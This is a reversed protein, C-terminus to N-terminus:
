RVYIDFGEIAVDEYRSEGNRCVRMEIDDTTPQPLQKYFWPPTNFSCCTNQPECGAGDWLPNDAYFINYRRYEYQGGTDCFYDDGVFSPIRAAARHAASASIEFCPCLQRRYYNDVAAAFTWIHTRPRGHTLSVGDVYTSDIFSDSFAFAEPRGYQYATIRGCVRTYTINPTSIIVSSCGGSDSTRVCTRRNTDNLQLGSPCQHSSNTMDLEAVRMWGGTVNGCSRTMGCYVRQASGNSTRVWYYGSPSSPPLSACSSAPFDLFKGLDDIFDTLFSVRKELPSINGSLSTELDEIFNTLFDVHKELTSINGTLSTAVPFDPFQGINEILFNVRKELASINGSLSTEVANHFPNVILLAIGACAAVVGLVLVTVTVTLAIVCKSTANSTYKSPTSSQGESVSYKVPDEYCVNEEMECDNEPITTIEAYDSAEEPSTM